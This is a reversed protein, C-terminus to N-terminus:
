NQMPTGLDCRLIECPKIFELCAGQPKQSTETKTMCVVIANAIKKWCSSMGQQRGWGNQKKEKKEHQFRNTGWRWGDQSFMRGIIQKNFLFKFTSCFNSQFWSFTPEYWGYLDIDKTNAKTGIMWNVSKQGGCCYENLSFMLLNRHGNLEKYNTKALNTKFTWDM